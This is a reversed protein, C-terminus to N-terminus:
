GITNLRCSVHILSYFCIESQGAKMAEASGHERDTPDTQIVLGAAISRYPPIPFSNGGIPKEHVLGKQHWVASIFRFKLDKSKSLFRGFFNM